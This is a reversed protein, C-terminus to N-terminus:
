RASGKEEFWAQLRTWAGGARRVDRRERKRAAERRSASRLKVEATKRM